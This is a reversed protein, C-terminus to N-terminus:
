LMHLRLTCLRNNAGGARCTAPQLLPRCQNLPMKQMGTVLICSHVLSRLSVADRPRSVTSLQLRASTCSLPPVRELLEHLETCLLRSIRSVTCYYHRPCMQLSSITLASVGM